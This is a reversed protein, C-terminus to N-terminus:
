RTRKGRAPADDPRAQNGYTIDVVGRLDEALDQELRGACATNAHEGLSRLEAWEGPTFCDPCPGEIMADGHEYWVHAMYRVLLDRDDPVHQPDTARRSPKTM